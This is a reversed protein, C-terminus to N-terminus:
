HLVVRLSKLTKCKKMHAFMGKILEEIYRGEFFETILSNFPMEVKIYNNGTNNGIDRAGEVDIDLRIHNRLNKEM